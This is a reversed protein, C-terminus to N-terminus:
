KSVDNAKNAPSSNPKILGGYVEAALDATHEESRLSREMNGNVTIVGHPGPMKLKTLM